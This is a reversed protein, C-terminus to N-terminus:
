DPTFLVSGSTQSPYRQSLRDTDRNGYPLYPKFWPEAVQWTPFKEGGKPKKRRFYCSHLSVVEELPPQWPTLPHYVPDKGLHEPMSWHESRLPSLDDKNRSCTGSALCKCHLILISCQTRTDTVLDTLWRNLLRQTGPGISPTFYWLDHRSEPLTFGYKTSVTGM